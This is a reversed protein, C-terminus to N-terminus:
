CGQLTIAVIGFGERADQGSTNRDDLGVRCARVSPISCLRRAEAAHTAPVLGALVVRQFSHLQLALCGQLTIAVIGFGERADQGSKNRDDVGVWLCLRQPLRM